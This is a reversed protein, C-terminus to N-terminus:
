WGRCAELDGRRSLLADLAAVAALGVAAIGVLELLSAPAQHLPHTAGCCVSAVTM